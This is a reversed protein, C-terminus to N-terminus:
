LPGEAKVSSVLISFYLEGREVNQCVSTQITQCKNTNIFKAPFMAQVDNKRFYTTTVVTKNTFRQREFYGLFMSQVVFLM